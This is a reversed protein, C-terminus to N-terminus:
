ILVLSCILFTCKVTIRRRASNGKADMGLIPHSAVCRLEKGNDSWKVERTLNQRVSFLNDKPNELIEPKSLGDTVVDDGACQLLSM